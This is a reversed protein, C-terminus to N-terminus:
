GVIGRDEITYGNRKPRVLEAARQTKWRLRPWTLHWRNRPLRGGEGFEHSFARPDHKGSNKGPWYAISYIGFGDATWLRQLDEPNKAVVFLKKGPADMVLWPGNEISRRFDIKITRYAVVGVISRGRIPDGKVVVQELAGLVVVTKPVGPIDPIRQVRANKGGRLHFEAWKKRARNEDPVPSPNSLVLLTPNRRVNM